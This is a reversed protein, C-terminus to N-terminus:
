SAATAPLKILTLSGAPLTWRFSGASIETESNVIRVADPDQPTNYANFAGSVTSVNAQVTKRSANGSGLVISADIANTFDRNFLALMLRGDPTRTTFAQIAENTRGSGLVTSPNNAISNALVANGRTEGM